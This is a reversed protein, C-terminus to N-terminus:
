PWEPAGGPPGMGGPPMGGPPMGGRDMGGPPGGPFQAEASHMLVPGALAVVLGGAVLLAGTRVVTARTM